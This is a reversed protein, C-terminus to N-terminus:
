AKSGHILQRYYSSRLIPVYHYFSRASHLHSHMGNQSRYGHLTLKMIPDLNVTYATM